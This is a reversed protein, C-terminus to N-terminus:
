SVHAYPVAGVMPHPRPERSPDYGHRASGEPIGVVEDNSERM